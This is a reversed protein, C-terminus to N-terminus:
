RLCCVWCRLKLGVLGCVLLAASLDVWEPVMEGASLQDRVGSACSGKSDMLGFVFRMVGKFESDSGGVFACMEEDTSFCQQQGNSVM